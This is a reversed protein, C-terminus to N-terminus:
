VSADIITRIKESLSQLNFPKQIFGDCGRNLIASAQGNISYGSSLLVNIGPDIAKLQDFTQGGGLDPMIMDLIVLRIQDRHKRYLALGAKGSRATLVKHGLATLMAKGVDLIMVDDDILLITESGERAPAQPEDADAPQADSARLHISFTTGHGVTSHVDIFGGHNRVIGYASALGLGTGRNMTKTTFFPDFIRQMTAADMGTGTDTIVIKVYRGPEAGHSSVQKEELIANVTELCLNGGDPMAQWANIFLNLLVQEIQGQDADVTWANEQYKQVIRLEQRTRGFMDISNRILANIDTPKVQYKGMRAFGLLQQTLRAGSQVCDRITALRDSHVHTPGMDLAMLEANGQIGMLLNNFDHAIGGALTGVAQMKQSQVLQDQLREKERSMQEREQIEGRLRANAEFLEATRQAVREELQDHSLQLAAEANKRQTIDRANVVLGQVAPNDLLNNSTAELTHWSGDHHRFRIESPGQMHDDCLRSDFLARAHDLDDPHVFDFACRGMLTDRPYGLIREISPSLYTMCGQVDVIAIIDSTNEILSRFHAERQQLATLTEQLHDAMQNFVRAVRGFEDQSRISVRTDLNGNGIREVGVTLLRLPHTLKRTLLMLVVAMVLFGSIGLGILYPQMRNAVGYVEREPDSALIYWEWPEFFDVMALNRGAPTLHILRKRQPKLQKFWVEQRVDQGVRAPDPHMVITGQRDIAFITGQKGVEIASMAVGADMKAKAISAPIDELGYRRLMADHGVAVQIAESLRTALWTEALETLAARSFHYAIGVTSLLLVFVLPITTLLIKSYTSM